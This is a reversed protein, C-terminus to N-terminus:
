GVGSPDVDILACLDNFAREREKKRRSNFRLYLPRHNWDFPHDTGGYLHHALAAAHVRIDDNGTLAKSLVKKRVASSPHRKALALVRTM